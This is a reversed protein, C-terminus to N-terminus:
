LKKEYIRYTKYHKGGVVEILKQILFNDELIWSFEIQKFRPHKDRIGRFAERIMLADVGRNRYEPRIGLLLLRLANIKRSYYVAKLIAAPNIRGKMKRLVFNFDPLLGLFGVPEGKNEAILTLEPIVISKMSKAATKTEEATLPVFGWNRSWASNYINRFLEMEQNFERLRIPRTRIGKKRAIDAARRVKGPLEDPVDCIYAFLDKAKKMGFREMFMSYFSPNYPMMLFPPTQFGDILMGCEENTSFSAPGRMVEMGENRLIGAAKELLSAAVTFDDASEFFGFFGTKENHFENHLHNIVASIRGAPKGEKWATFHWAKAHRFFPNNASLRKRTKYILEPSFFPNNRYLSFPIRIFDDLERRSHVETIEIDNSPM